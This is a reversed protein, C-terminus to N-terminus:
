DFPVVTTGDWRELVRESMVARRGRHLHTPGSM